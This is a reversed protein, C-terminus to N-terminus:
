GTHRSDIRLLLQLGKVQRHARLGFLGNFVAGRNLVPLPIIKRLLTPVIQVHLFKFNSDHVALFLGYFHRGLHFLCDELVLLVFVCRRVCDLVIPFRERSLQCLGILLNLLKSHDVVSEPFFIAVEVGVIILHM